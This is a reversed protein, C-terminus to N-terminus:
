VGYPSTIEEQQSWELDNQSDNSTAKTPTATHCECACVFGSFKATHYLDCCKKSFIQKPPKTPPYYTM